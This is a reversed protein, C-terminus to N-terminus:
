WRIEAQERVVRTHRWQLCDADIQLSAAGAIRRRMLRSARAAAQFFCAPRTRTSPLLFYVMERATVQAEYHSSARGIVLMDHGIQCLIGHIVGGYM